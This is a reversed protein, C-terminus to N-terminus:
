ITAALSRSGTRRTPRQMLRVATRPRNDRRSIATSPPTAPPLEYHQQSNTHPRLHGSAGGRSTDTPASSCSAAGSSETSTTGPLTMSSASSTPIGMTHGVDVATDLARRGAPDTLAVFANGFLDLTSRGHDLWLHPARHGPRGVPLYEGVPDRTSPEATHDPTIVASHYVQGLVLGDIPNPPRAPGLSADACAVAHPRREREYSKLLAPSAWGALVGDLKWALNHADAVGCNMGLGGEPMTVHAADGVLYVRGVQYRDAVLATPEWFRHGIYRLEASDDGLGGRVLEVCRRETLSGGPETEPNYPASLLWRRKNDVAVFLSGSLPRRLWYVASQRQEMRM